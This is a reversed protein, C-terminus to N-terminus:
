ENNKLQESIEMLLSINKGFGIFFAGCVIGGGLFAMAIYRIYPSDLVRAEKLLRLGEWIGGFATLVGM